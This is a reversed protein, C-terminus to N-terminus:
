FIYSVYKVKEIDHETSGTQKFAKWNRGRIKQQEKELRKQTCKFLIPASVIFYFFHFLSSFLLFDYQLVTIKLYPQKNSECRFSQLFFCYRPM